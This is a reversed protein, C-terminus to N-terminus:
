KRVFIRPAFFACAATLTLNIGTEPLGELTMFQEIAYMGIEPALLAGLISWFWTKCINEWRFPWYDMKITFRKNLKDQKDKEESFDQFFQICCVVLFVFTELILIPIEITTQM